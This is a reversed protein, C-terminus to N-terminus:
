QNHEPVIQIINKENAKGEFYIITNALRQRLKLIVRQTGDEFKAIFGTRPAAASNGLMKERENTLTISSYLIWGGIIIAMSLASCLIVWRLKTASDSTQIQHIKEGINM